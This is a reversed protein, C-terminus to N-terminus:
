GEFLQRVSSRGLVAFTMVGLATGYPVELCSLAATILCLMRSRRQKLRIATLVKLTAAVTAIGAFVAGFVAFIWPMFEPPPPGSGTPMQSLLLGMGGYMLGFPIFVANQGASIFYGIRLLRLHEDDIIAERSTANWGPNSTIPPTFSPTSIAHRADLRRTTSDAPESGIDFWLLARQKASFLTEGRRRKGSARCAALEITNGSFGSGPGTLRVTALPGVTQFL